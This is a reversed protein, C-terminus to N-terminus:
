IKYKIFSNLNLIEVRKNKIDTKIFKEKYLVFKTREASFEACSQSKVIQPM